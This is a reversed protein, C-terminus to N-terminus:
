VTMRRLNPWSSMPLVQTGVKKLSKNVRKPNGWPCKTTQKAVSLNILNGRGFGNTTHIACASLVTWAATKRSPATSKLPGIGLSLAEKHKSPIYRPVIREYM